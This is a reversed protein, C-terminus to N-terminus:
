GLSPKVHLIKVPGVPMTLGLCSCAETRMAAKLHWLQLLGALLWLPTLPPPSDSPQPHCPSTSLPMPWSRPIPSGNSVALLVETRPFSSSFSSSFSSPVPLLSSSGLCFSRLLLFQCPFFVCVFLSCTCGQGILVFM